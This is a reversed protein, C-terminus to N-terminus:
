AKWVGVATRLLSAAARDPRRGVVAGVPVAEFRIGTPPVLHAEMAGGGVFLFEAAGTAAEAVAVLPYIHGGTGGGALVVRLPGARARPRAQPRIM